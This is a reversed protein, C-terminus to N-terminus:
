LAEAPIKYSNGNLDQVVVYGTPTPAGATYTNGLRVHKGSEMVIGTGDITVCRSRTASGTPTVDIGISSGYNTGNAWNETAYVGILATNTTASAGGGNNGFFVLAGMRDGLALAAGDNNGLSLNASTNNASASTNLLELLGATGTTKLRVLLGDGAAELLVDTPTLTGGIGIRGDPNIRMREANSVSDVATTHFAIYSPRSTESHTAAAFMEIRASNAWTSGGYTRLVALWGDASQTPSLATLTGRAASGFYVSQSPGGTASLLVVAPNSVQSQSAILGRGTLFGSSEAWAVGALYRIGHESMSIANTAALTTFVGTSPTADGVPTSNLSGTHFSRDRLAQVEISKNQNAPLAENPDYFPLRGNNPANNMLTDESIKGAM